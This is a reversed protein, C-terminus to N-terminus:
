VDDYGDPFDIANDDDRERLWDRAVRRAEEQETRPIFEPAPLDRPIPTIYKPRRRLFHGSM